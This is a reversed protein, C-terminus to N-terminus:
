GAGSLHEEVAQRLRARGSHLLARQTDAELALYECVEQATCGQEDRLSVVVRQAQPLESLAARVAAAADLDTPWASPFAVWGGAWQEGAPRFRAPDVTPAPTSADEVARDWPHEDHLAERARDVVRRLAAPRLMESRLDADGAAITELWAQRVVAEAADVDRSFAYAVRMLAPSLAEVVSIFAEEDVRANV